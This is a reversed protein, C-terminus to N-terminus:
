KQQQQQADVVVHYLGDLASLVHHLVAKAENM